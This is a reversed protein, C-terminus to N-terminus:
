EDKEGFYKIVNSIFHLSGTIVLIEDDNVESVAKDLAEVYDEILVYQKTTFSKFYNVDTGRKDIISTFYYFDTIEDLSKLMQDIAKDQLATFVVKIYKNPYKNKLTDVLADVGHINHAGDIIINEKIYEFRGPWYTDDLAKDIVDKSISPILEKIVSIALSANYAQYAGNMKTHYIENKFKFTVGDNLDLVIVDDNIFNIISGNNKSYEIFYDKLSEDTATFCVKNPRTIGLKHNAIDYITPGLQNIHDFGINTIVQIDAEVVNTSDLKGGMGCELVLYDINSENFYLLAMLFTLEFFPITDNFDDFYNQTITYLYNCYDLIKDDTIYDDNIEIRENFKIVFPSVFLGVKKNNMMLMKKIFSATSGKGNTGAIHVIKYNFKINLKKILYSIRSLDERKKSKKQEYLWNLAENLNTFM